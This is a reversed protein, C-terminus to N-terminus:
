DLSFHPVEIMQGNEAELQIQGMHNGRVTGEIAVPEHFMVLGRDDLNIISKGPDRLMTTNDDNALAPGTALLCSAAAVSAIFHKMM